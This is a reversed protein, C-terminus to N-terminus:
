LDEIEQWTVAVVGPKSVAVAAARMAYDIATKINGGNVLYKVVLASLVTDGCGSVSWVKGAHSDSHYVIEGTQSYLDSGHKGRTVILNKCWKWPETVGASIQARYEKDNIKVYDIERSWSGLIHKTDCFIPIHLEHAIEGLAEIIQTSILGKGYDSIVVAYYDERSAAMGDIVKAWFDPEFADDGEDVRLLQQGSAEDVYRTKRIEASQHIFHVPPGGLSEINALVNGAMGPNTKMDLPQAVPVPAAPDLRKCDCTIFVDTANEGVLLIRKTSM